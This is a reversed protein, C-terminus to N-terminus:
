SVVGSLTVSGLVTAIFTTCVSGPILVAATVLVSFGAVSSVPSTIWTGCKTTSPSTIVILVSFLSYRERVLHRRGGCPAISDSGCTFACGSEGGGARVPACRCFSGGRGRRAGIRGRRAFGSGGLGNLNPACM